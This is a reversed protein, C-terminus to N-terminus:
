EEKRKTLKFDVKWGNVPFVIKQENRVELTYQRIMRALLIRLELLAFAKGLCVHTGGGFIPYASKGQRPDIYNSDVLDKRYLPHSEPLFREMCFQDHNHYINEDTVAMLISYNFMTGTDFRYGKQEVDKQAKRFGGPVPPDMRLSEFIVANLVPADKLEDCDLTPEVHKLNMIEETLAKLASPNQNLHHMITSISMYTTDHGAFILGLINDKMEERSLARGNGDDKDKGYILCGIITTRARESGEPNERQFQDILGDIVQLIRDRAKMANDFNTGPIRATGTLSFFGSIWLKFDDHLRHLIDEDITGLSSIYFLRLAYMKFIESSQFTGTSSWKELEEQTTVDMCHCYNQVFTPAFYPELLRRLVRHYKGVQNPVANPGLLMQINPPWSVDTMAKRDQRFLWSLDQEGGLVVSPGAPTQATFMTGFRNRADKLQQMMSGNAIGRIFAIERAVPYGIPGPPLKKQVRRRIFKIEGLVMWVSFVTISANVLTSFPSSSSALTSRIAHILLCSYIAGKIIHERLVSFLSHVVVPVQNKEATSKPSPM